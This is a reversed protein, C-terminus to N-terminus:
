HLQILAGFMEYKKRSLPGESAPPFVITSNYHPARSFRTVCTLSGDGNEAFNNICIGLVDQCIESKSLQIQEKVVPQKKSLIYVGPKDVFLIPLEVVDEHKRKM